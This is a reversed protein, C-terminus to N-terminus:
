YSKQADVRDRNEDFLRALAAIRKDQMAVLILRAARPPKRDPFVRCRTSTYVRDSMTSKMVLAIKDACIIGSEFRYCRCAHRCAVYDEGRWAIDYLYRNIRDM